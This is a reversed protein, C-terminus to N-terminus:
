IIRKLEFNKLYSKFGGLQKNCMKAKMQRLILFRCFSIRYKIKSWEDFRVNEHWFPICGNRWHCFHLPCSYFFRHVPKWFFNLNKAFFDIEALLLGHYLAFPPSAITAPHRRTPCSCLQSASSFWGRFRTCRHPSSLM